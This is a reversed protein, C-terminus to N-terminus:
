PLKRWALEVFRALSWTIETWKVFMVFLAAGSLLGALDFRTVRGGSRVSHMLVERRHM